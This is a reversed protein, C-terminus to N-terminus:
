GYVPQPLKKTVIVKGRYELRQNGGPRITINASERAPNASLLYIEGNYGRCLQKIYTSGDVLFIGVDFDSIPADRLVYALSGSPFYPEMSDGSVTICYDANRPAGDPLPIDEYDEGAEMGSFGAAPSSFYHRITVINDSDVTNTKSERAMRTEECALLALIADRGHEDLLKFRSSLEDDQSVFSPAAPKGGILAEIPMGLYAEIAAINKESPTYQGKRWQSLTATSIGTHKSFEAKSISNAACYADIQRALLKADVKDVSYWGKINAFNKRL